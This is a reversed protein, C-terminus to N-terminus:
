LELQQGPEKADTVKPATERCAPWPTAAGSQPEFENSPEKADM